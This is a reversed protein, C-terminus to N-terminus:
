GVPERREFGGEAPNACDDFMIFYQDTPRSNHVVSVSPRLFEFGDFLLDFTELGLEFLVDVVVISPSGSSIPHHGSNVLYAGLNSARGARASLRRLASSPNFFLRALQQFFAQCCPEHILNPIVSLNRPEDLSEPHNYGMVLHTLVTKNCQTRSVCFPLDRVALSKRGVRDGVEGHPNETNNRNKVSVITGGM